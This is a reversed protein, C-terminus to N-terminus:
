IKYPRLNGTNVLDQFTSGTPFITRRSTLDALRDSVTSQQDPVQSPESLVRYATLGSKFQGDEFDYVDKLDDAAQDLDRVILELYSDASAAKQTGQWWANLALAILVGSVVILIEAAFWRLKPRWDWRSPQRAPHAALIPPPMSELRTESM